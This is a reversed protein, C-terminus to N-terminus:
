GHRIEQVELLVPFEASNPHATVMGTQPGRAAAPTLHRANHHDFAAQRGFAYQIVCDIAYRASDHITHRSAVFQPRRDRGMRYVTVTYGNM